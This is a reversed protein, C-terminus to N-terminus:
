QHTETYHAQVSVGPFPEGKENVVRGKVDIPPPPLPQEDTEASPFAAISKATVAIIKDLITYTLAQDRFCLTLVQELGVNRVDISVPRTGQLLKEKYFFQYDSQKEIETFIEKLSANRKSLTLGQGHGHASAVLSVSLLLVATLKM